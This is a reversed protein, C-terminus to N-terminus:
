VRPLRAPFASARWGWMCSAPNRSSAARSLEM